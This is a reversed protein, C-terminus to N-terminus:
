IYMLFKEEFFVLWREFCSWFNKKNKQSFDGRDFKPNCDEGGMRIIVRYTITMHSIM